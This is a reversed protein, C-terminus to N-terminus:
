NFEFPFTVSAILGQDGNYDVGTIPSAGSRDVKANGYRLQQWEINVSVSQLKLGAGFRWGQAEDFYPDLGNASQPDLNGALVYEAYLRPGNDPMQWGVTPAIDWSSARVSINNANDTFQLQAYRADAAVFFQSYIHIGGRLLAGFGRTSGSSNALKGSYDINSTTTQYSVGPELFLGTMNSDTAASAVCSVSLSFIGVLINKYLEM